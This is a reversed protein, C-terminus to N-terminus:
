PAYNNNKLIIRTCHRFLRNRWNSGTHTSLLSAFEDLEEKPRADYFRTYKVRLWMLLFSWRLFLFILYIIASIFYLITGFSLMVLMVLPWYWKDEGMELFVLIATIVNVIFYGVLLYLMMVLVVQLENERPQEM